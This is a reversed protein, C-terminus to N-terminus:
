SRSLHFWSRAGMQHHPHHTAAFTEFNSTFKGFSCQMKCPQSSFRVHCWDLIISSMCPQIQGWMVKANWQARLNQRPGESAGCAKANWERTVFLLTFHVFLWEWSWLNFIKLLDMPLFRAPFTGRQCQALARGLLKIMDHSSWWWQCWWRTDEEM